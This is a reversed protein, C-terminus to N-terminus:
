IFGATAYTTDTMVETMHSRVDWNIGGYVGATIMLLMSLWFFISRFFKYMEVKVQNIM